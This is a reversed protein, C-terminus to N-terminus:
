FTKDFDLMTFLIAHTSLVVGPSPNIWFCKVLGLMIQVGMTPLTSLRLLEYLYLTVICFLDSLLTDLHSQHGLVIWSITLPQAQTYFITVM